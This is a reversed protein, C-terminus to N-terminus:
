IQHQASIILLDFKDIFSFNEVHVELYTMSQIGFMFEINWSTMQLKRALSARSSEVSRFSISKVGNVKRICKVVNLKNSLYPVNTM